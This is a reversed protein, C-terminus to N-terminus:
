FGEDDWEDLLPDLRLMLPLLPNDVQRRFSEIDQVLILDGQRRALGAARRLTDKAEAARHNLAQALGLVMLRHPEDPARRTAEEAYRLALDPRLELLDDVLHASLREDDPQLEVSRELVEEAFRSWPTDAPPAPPTSRGYPSLLPQPRSRKLLLLGLDLYFESTLPLAAEARHLVARAADIENAVVWCEIAQLYALPRETALALARELLDRARKLKRRGIAIRALNLPFQYEDPALRQGEEFLPTAADDLGIALLDQGRELLLRAMHRQAEAHDPHQRLVRRMTQEAAYWAGREMYASALRFQAEIHQPDLQLLRQLENIAAQDQENALLADALQLRLELANPDAKIAQRYVAVAEGPAGARKYCEIVRGRVWTWEAESLGGERPSSDAPAAAATEAVGEKTKSGVRGRPRTRLLARWAEAAELWREQAENALALNHLLPRPSGLATSSSVVQRAGEWLATARAWDGAAAVAHAARDLTLVLAEGLAPSSKALSVWRQATTVARDLDGVECQERLSRPLIAAVNQLLWPTHTGQEDLHQWAQMAADLDGAQAAAVGQYYRRVATAQMSRLPRTDALMERAGADGAQLLGLGCWLREVPGDGEPAPMESRLLAQVPALAQRVEPTSGPLAALDTDADQELAALALMMGAGPRGADRQLVTRYFEIAMALNGVRHLALGLHYQYRLEGPVHTAARRLDAVQEEGAPRMLARRFHAEALAAVIQADQQALESWLAIAEDLRGARFAQLGLQRQDLTPTPPRKHRGKRTSRKHKPM